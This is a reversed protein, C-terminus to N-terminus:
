HEENWTRYWELCEANAVSASTKVNLGCLIQKVAVEVKKGNTTVPIAPCEDVIGPVHRSSLEKRIVGKIKEM